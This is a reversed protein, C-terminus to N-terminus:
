KNSQPEIQRYVLTVRTNSHHFQEEKYKPNKDERRKAPPCHQHHPMRAEEGPKSRHPKKRRIGEQKATEV